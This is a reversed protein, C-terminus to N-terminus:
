CTNKESDNIKMELGTDKWPRISRQNDVVSQRKDSRQFGSTDIANAKM